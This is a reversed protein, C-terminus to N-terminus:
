LVGTRRFYKEAGPHIPASRGQDIMGNRDIQGLAPHVRRLMELNDFVAKTLAEALDDSLDGSAVVTVTVGFTSVRKAQGVYTYAPITARDFFPNKAIIKDIDGDAANVLRADCLELAKTVEADPHTTKSVIAQVRNHCLALTQEFETLELAAQFSKKSWGKAKMILALLARQDSGPSGVNVRKGALDAVGMVGSDKRAIVTLPEQHLGFLSRLNDFKMHVFKVPGSGNIAHYQWDSQIIAVDVANTQVANLVALPEAADSGIIQATECSVGARKASRCLVRAIKQHFEANDGAAIVLDAAGAPAANLVAVLVLGIFGAMIKSALNGSCQYGTIDINTM